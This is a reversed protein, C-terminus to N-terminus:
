SQKRQHQCEKGQSELTDANEFFEEKRYIRSEKPNDEHLLTVIKVTHLIQPLTSPAALVIKHAERCKKDECVLTVDSFNNLM